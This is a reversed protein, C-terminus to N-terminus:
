ELDLTSLPTRVVYPVILIHPLDHLPPWCTIQMSPCRGYILLQMKLDESIVNGNYIMVCKNNHFTVTCGAKCLPRIGILLAAALHPVIHGTLMMLLGPIEIDCVHTSMVKRDDPLNITWPWNVVRKNIVDIGDMIFISTTGMNAIVHTTVITLANLQEPLASGFRMGAAAAITQM